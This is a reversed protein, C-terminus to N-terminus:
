GVDGRGASAFRQAMEDCVRAVCSSISQAEDLVTGDDSSFAKSKRKMPQKLQKLLLPV